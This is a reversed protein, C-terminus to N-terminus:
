QVDAPPEACVPPRLRRVVIALITAGVVVLGAPLAAIWDLNVDAVHTLAYSGSVIAFVLGAFLSLPDLEHRQM